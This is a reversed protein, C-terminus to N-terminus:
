RTVYHVDYLVLTIIDYVNQPPPPLQYVPYLYVQRELFDLAPPLDPSYPPSMPSMAPSHLPSNGLPSLPPPSSPPTISNIYWASKDTM